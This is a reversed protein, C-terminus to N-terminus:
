GLLVRQKIRLWGSRDDRAMLKGFAVANGIDGRKLALHGIEVILGQDEHEIGVWTIDLLDHGRLFQLSNKGFYDVKRVLHISM